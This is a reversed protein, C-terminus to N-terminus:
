SRFDNAYRKGKDKRYEMVGITNENSNKINDRLSHIIHNSYSNKFLEEM